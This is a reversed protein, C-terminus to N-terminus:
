RPRDSQSRTLLRSAGSSKALLYRSAGSHRCWRGPTWTATQQRKNGCRRMLEAGFGGRFSALKLIGSRKTLDCSCLRYKKLRGRIFIYDIIIEANTRHKLLSATHRFSGKFYLTTITGPLDCFSASRPRRHCFQASNSM